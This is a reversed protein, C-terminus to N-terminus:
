SYMKYASNATKLTFDAANYLFDIIDNLLSSGNSVGISNNPISELIQKTEERNREQIRKMATRAINSGAMHGIIGGITGGVIVGGITGGVIVGGPDLVTDITSGIVDSKTSVALGAITSVTTEQMQEIAEIKSVKGTALKGMIEINDVATTAIGAIIGIPTGKPISSIVGKEVSAILAGTAACKVGTDIGTEIATELVEDAEIKEGSIAKYAVNLGISLGAAGIGTVGANKGINIALQRTNYENWSVQPMKGNKQANFQMKQAEEKSFPKSEVGGCSIKEVAKSQVNASHGKPVLKQQGRCDGHNFLKGTAIGNTGYKSQWRGKISGSGFKDKVVIDVSNKTYIEGPEPIRAIARLDSKKLAADMNFTAAHYQEAIFGDLNRCM